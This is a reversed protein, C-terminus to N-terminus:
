SSPHNSTSQCVITIIFNKNNVAPYNSGYHSSSEHNRKREINIQLNSRKALSSHSHSLSHKRSHSHTIPFPNTTRTSTNKKSVPIEITRLQMRIELTESSMKSKQWIYIRSRLKPLCTWSGFM